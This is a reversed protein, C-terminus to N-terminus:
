ARLAGAGNAFNALMLGHHFQMSSCYEAYLKLLIHSETAVDFSMNKLCKGWSRMEEMPFYDYQQNKAVTSLLM